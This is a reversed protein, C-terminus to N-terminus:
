ESFIVLVGRSRETATKLVALIAAIEPRYSSGARAALAAHDLSGLAAIQQKVGAADWYGVAPSGYPSLPL